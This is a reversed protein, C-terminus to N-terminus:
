VWNGIESPYDPFYRGIEDLSFTPLVSQAPERQLLYLMSARVLLPEQTKAMGLQDLLTEPVRVQHTTETGDDATITVAYQHEGDATIDIDPM